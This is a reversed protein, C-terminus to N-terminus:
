YNIMAKLRQLQGSISLDIVENDFYIKIGGILAADIEYNLQLQSKLRIELSKKLAQKQQEDLETACIVKLILLQQYKAYLEKFLKTIKPLLLLQKKDILIKLLNIATQFVDLSAATCISLLIKLQQQKNATHNTSFLQPAVQVAAACLNLLQEWLHFNNQERAIAFIAKVYPYALNNNVTIPM